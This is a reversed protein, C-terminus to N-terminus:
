FIHLVHTGFVKLCVLIFLTLSCLLLVAGTLDLFLWLFFIVDFYIYLLVVVVVVCYLTTGRRGLVIRLTIFFLCVFFLLIAFGFFCMLIHLQSVLSLLLFRSYVITYRFAVTDGSFTVLLSQSQLSCCCIALVVASVVLVIVVLLIIGDANIISVLSSSSFNIPAMNCVLLLM